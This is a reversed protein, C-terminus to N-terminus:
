LNIEMEKGRMCHENNTVPLLKSFQELKLSNKAFKLCIKRRREHLTDLKLKKLGEDYTTYRTGM